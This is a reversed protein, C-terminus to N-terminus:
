FGLGFNMVYYRNDKQGTYYGDEEAWTAFEYHLVTFLNGGIGATWYGGKLGCAIRGKLIYPIITQEWEAGMNIKSAGKWNKDNNLIDEWDLAFNIKRKWRYNNQLLKPSYALGITLEPTIKEHNLTMFLNQIAMGLRLTRTQQWLIGIDLGHGLLSFDTLNGLHNQLTDQMTSALRKKNSFEIMAIQVDKIIERRAVRYELGIALRDHMFSRAIGIEAALDAKIFELGAQPFIIGVDIFPAVRADGWYSIGFNHFALEGGHIVSFLIPDRDFIILDEALTEDNKLADLDGSLAEKHNQYIDLIKLGTGFPVGTGLFNLHMDFLDSPYYGMEPRRRRNGLRNILNLGAPNYHLADKDDVVAVFANGMALPRLTRHEPGKTAHSNGFLLFFLFFLISSLFWARLRVKM